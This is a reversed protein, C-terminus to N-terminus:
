PLRASFTYCGPATLVHGDATFHLNTPALTGAAQFQVARRKDGSRDYVYTYPLVLSIWLNGNADVAATRVTPPVIPFEGEATKRRPWAKPLMQIHKDLEVGQIHREFVLDGKTDYRRFVPVGGLFVFYFGSRDPSAVPLGANLALHLDRDQEFGTTRLEGFSRLVRGDLSYETVLAGSEPQSVLITTGTYDVTGVGSLVIDGLAVRPTSRGPMTFGGATGGAYFFVQVRQTSFPADAIVFRGDPASDFAVPRLIRGPEVGIQVIQRAPGSRPVLSVAHARRDFVLYDGDPSLHCAAIEAFTGAIHAPLAGVSRLVDVPLVSATVAAPSTHLASTGFAALSLAAALVKGMCVNLM